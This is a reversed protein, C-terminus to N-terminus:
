RLRQSLDRESGALGEGVVTGEGDLIAPRLEIGGLRAPQGLCTKQHQHLVLAQRRQRCSEVIRGRGQRDALGARYDGFAPQIRLCAPPRDFCEECAIGPLLQATRWFHEERRAM